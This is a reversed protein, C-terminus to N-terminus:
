QGYAKTRPYDNASTEDMALYLLLLRSLRFLLCNGCGAAEVLDHQFSIDKLDRGVWAM